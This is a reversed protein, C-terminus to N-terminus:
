FVDPFAVSKGMNHDLPVRSGCTFNPLKLMYPEEM